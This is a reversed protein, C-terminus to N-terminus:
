GLGAVSGDKGSEFLEDYSVKSDPSFAYRLHDLLEPVVQFMAPKGAEYQYNVIAAALHTKGCGNDGRLV